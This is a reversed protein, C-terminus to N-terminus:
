EIVEDALALIGAPLELGLARATKLNIIFKVKTPQQVPLTSPNAGKLIRDTYIAARRHLDPIDTDYAMLGGGDTVQISYPYIAPLKHRAALESVQARHVIFLSEATTLVAEARARVGADFAAPLDDGTRIDQVLLTVDLSLAAEKLAAVQLPAIPDALYSLVLVRSLGPMAGKLLGLRKAALEPVMLSMGTINAGPQALSGVLGTGVPDGLAIMVIPITRTANKAAQAAPTTSIAIIDAQLRVCEAALAPFQEGRGDASLYDITITQGNVYGLDRLGDFFADFRPSQSQLTDPGFSLFCLRPIKKSQQAEGVFPAALLTLMALLAVRLMKSSHQAQAALPWTAAAGGLAAIFDRRRM